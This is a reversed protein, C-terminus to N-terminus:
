KHYRRYLYQMKIPGVVPWIFDSIKQRITKQVKTKDEDWGRINFDIDVDIEKLLKEVGATGKGRHM